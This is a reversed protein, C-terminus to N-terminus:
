RGGEKNGEFVQGFWNSDSTSPDDLTTLIKELEEAIFEIRYKADINNNITKATVIIHRFKAKGINELFADLNTESYIDGVAEDEFSTIKNSDNPTDGFTPNDNLFDTIIVNGSSASTIFKLFNHNETILVSLIYKILTDESFRTKGKMSSDGAIWAAQEWSARYSRQNIVFQKYAASGYSYTNGSRTIGMLSIIDPFLGRMGHIIGKDDELPVERSSNKGDNDKPILKMIDIKSSFDISSAGSLTEAIDIAFLANNILSEQDVGDKIEGTTSDVANLVNSVMDTMLQLVLVDAQTLEGVDDNDLEPLTFADLVDKVVQATSGEKLAEITANIVQVTGSAAQQQETTAAVKQDNAFKQKKDDTNTAEKITNKLAEQETETKPSLISPVDELNLDISVSGFITAKGGTVKPAKGEIAAIAATAEEVGSYDAKVINEYVNNGFVGLFDAFSSRMDADCSILTLALIPVLLVLVIQKRM